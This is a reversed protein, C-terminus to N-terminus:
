KRLRRYIVDPRGYKEYDWNTPAYNDDWSFRQYEEFGNDQYLNSLFGDFHDLTTGGNAIASQILENGINRVNSNNHVSVIDKDKGDASPILAYGIPYGQLQYTEVNRNKFDEITYQSLFSTRKNQRISEIFTEYDNKIFCNNKILEVVKEREPNEDENVIGWDLVDAVEACHEFVQKPLKGKERFFRMENLLKM